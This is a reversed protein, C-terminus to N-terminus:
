TDNLRHLGHDVRSRKGACAMRTPVAHPEVISLHGLLTRVVAVSFSQSANLCTCSTCTLRSLDTVWRFPGTTETCTGYRRVMEDALIGNLGRRYLGVLWQLGQLAVGSRSIFM